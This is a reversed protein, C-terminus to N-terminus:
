RRSETGLPRLRDLRLRHRDDSLRYAAGFVAVLTGLATAGAILMMILIQYRAADLPPVGALLQGTMMGPISVVGAAAMSNVISILGSRIASRTIPNFAQWRTAGLSLQAEIASRERYARSTLSNLGLSVGNMTNGLIMGLLPLAYRPDWWPDPNVQTTLSFLSVSAAAIFISGGGLGWSWLGALAREQRGAIERGAFLIMFLAAAGTLWPSALSFLSELVLALLLLQAVMRLAAIILSRTMGLRLLLSLGADFVLLASAFALDWWSLAIYSAQATM